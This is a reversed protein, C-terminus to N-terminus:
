TRDHSTMLALVRYGVPIVILTLLTSASLGAIVVLAMPARLETGEAAGFWGTLPLMGLVTTFTTMLIPRLRARSAELIALELPKGKKRNQNIRDVLVIANNVVIGALVVAGLLAVVSIPTGTLSLGLVAGSAALPVSFMILLPQLLSEFQAAMVAYVLFIALLLAFSLSDLASEMERTQGGLSIVRDEKPPLSALKAEVAQATAGLDFGALSASLVAARRGDIHRIESPGDAISLKAVAGLTLPRDSAPNVPLMALQEVHQMHSIDARVRIDIREDKGPFTSSVQGEV